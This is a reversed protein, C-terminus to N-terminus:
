KNKMKLYTRVLIVAGLLMLLGYIALMVFDYEKEEKPINEKVEEFTQSDLAYLNGKAGIYVVGNKVVPDSSIPTTIYNNVDDNDISYGPAFNWALEGNEKNVAYLRGDDSGFFVYEGYVAPSSQIAAKCTFYWELEGTEEDLAYLNNDNSGFYVMGNSIAPTSDIGWGTEFEWNKEGTSLDLSYLNGDWSGVYVDNGFIKPSTTIRGDTEFEWRKEKNDINLCYCKKDSGICVSDEKVESVVGSYPLEYNWETKGSKINFAYVDGNSFSTIVLDDVIVPKSSVKDIKKYWEIDGTVKNIASIGKETGIIILDDSVEHTFVKDDIKKNWITDGKKADIAYLICPSLFTYVVDETVINYSSNMNGEPEVEHKWLVKGTKKVDNYNIKKHLGNPKSISPYLRVWGNPPLETLGHYTKIYDETPMFTDGDPLGMFALFGLNEMLDSSTIKGDTM